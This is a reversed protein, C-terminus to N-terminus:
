LLSSNSSTIDCSLCDQMVQKVIRDLSIRAITGFMGILQARDNIDLVPNTVSKSTLDVIM